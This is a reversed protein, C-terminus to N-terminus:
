PKRVAFIIMLDLRFSIYIMQHPLNMYLKILDAQLNKSWMWNASLGQKYVKLKRNEGYM